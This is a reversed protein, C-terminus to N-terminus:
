RKKSKSEGKKIGAKGTLRGSKDHTIEGTEEGYMIAYELNNLTSKRNLQGRSVEEWAKRLEEGKVLQRDITKIEEKLVGQEETTLVSKKLVNEISKKRNNKYFEMDGLFVGLGLALISLADKSATSLSIEKEVLKGEFATMELVKGSGTVGFASHKLEAVGNEREKIQSWKESRVDGNKSLKDLSEPDTRVIEAIAPVLIQCVEINEKKEAAQTARLSEVRAERIKKQEDLIQDVTKMINAHSPTYIVM